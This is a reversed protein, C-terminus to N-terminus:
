IKLQGFYDNKPPILYSHRPNCGSHRAMFELKLNKERFKRQTQSLQHALQYDSDIAAVFQMQLYPWLKHQGLCEGLDGRPLLFLAHEDRWHHLM